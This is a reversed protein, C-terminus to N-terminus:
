FYFYGFFKLSFKLKLFTCFLAWIYYTWHLTRILFSCRIAVNEVLIHEISQFHETPNSVDTIIYIPLIHEMPEYVFEPSLRSYLFLHFVISSEGNSLWKPLYDPLNNDNHVKQIKKKVWFGRPFPFHHSHLNGYGFKINKNM